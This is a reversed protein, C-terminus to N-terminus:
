EIDGNADTKILWVDPYGSGFPTTDGTIIYGGDSTQQVSNGRDESSGGFTKTWLSDGGADTKILWVDYLGAGYSYTCGTIIYGRDSTQQVSYGIDSGTGGFTKDWLKNGNSDVRILWVDYSGVGYSFTRGTIIFGGDSTQQVSYGCDHNSGGFTKDWLKNGGADTKILWVDYLGAGYSDTCGTIIYGGDSTQQVSYGEDSGTGGFIKDWLKNGNSDTRILIISRSGIEYIGTIIFGYDDTQQVSLGTDYGRGGFTKDWLKNGNADTRILWVDSIGVSFSFTYGTIIFGGDNIQKVSNGVDYNSGGFTRDWLQNGSADTKILWVDYLGAGYSRTHGTIIYGGDNTQQVSNGVDDDSGGFTCKFLHEVEFSKTSNKECMNFLSFSLLILFAITLRFVIEMKVSRKNIGIKAM